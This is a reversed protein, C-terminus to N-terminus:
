GAGVGGTSRVAIGNSLLAKKVDAIGLTGFHFVSAALAADAGCRGLIGVFDDVTGCGGSAIVPIDVSSAVSSVLKEDYGRGTGDADRSTLLIEGAGLGQVTRSWELADMGTAVTGSNTYVEYLQSASNWAADISVVMCQSGFEASVSRVLDPNKVAATNLSIKDAGSGLAKSVDDLSRLGGGATLPIFLVSATDRLRHFMTERSANTAGIDLWAIEDAGEREYRSSLEVPDGAKRLSAFRVGKVVGEGLIDLCPIIRKM